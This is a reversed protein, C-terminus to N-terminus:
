PAIHGYHAATASNADTHVQQEDLGAAVMQWSDKKEHDSLKKPVHPSMALPKGAM